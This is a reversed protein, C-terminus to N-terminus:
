FRVELLNGPESAIPQPRPVPLMFTATEYAGRLTRQLAHNTGELSGVLVGAAAGRESTEARVTQFFATWGTTLDRVGGQLREAPSAVPEGAFATTATSLATILV